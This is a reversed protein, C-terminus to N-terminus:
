FGCVLRTRQRIQAVERFQLASLSFLCRSLNVNGDWSAGELTVPQLKGAPECRFTYTPASTKPNGVLAREPERASGPLWESTLLPQLLASFPCAGSGTVHELRETACTATDAAKTIVNVSTVDLLNVGM